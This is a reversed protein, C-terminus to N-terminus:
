LEPYNEVLTDTATLGLSRAYRITTEPKSHRLHRMVDYLPAGNKILRSVALHKLSYIGYGLGTLGTAEIAAAFRKLSAAATMELLPATPARNSREVLHQLMQPPIRISAARRSKAASAPVMVIGAELNVDGAVLKLCETKRLALYYTCRALFAMDPDHEDLWAILAELHEKRIVRHRQPVAKPISLGKFPDSGYAARHLTRIRQVYTAVTSASSRAATTQLFAEAQGADGQAPVMARWAKLSSAYLRHNQNDISPAKRKLAELMLDGGPEGDPEPPEPGPRWGNILLETYAKTVAQLKRTRAAKDRIRNIGEARKLRVYPNYLTIDVYWRKKMDGGRNVAHIMFQDTKM